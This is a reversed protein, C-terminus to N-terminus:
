EVEEMEILSLVADILYLLDDLYLDHYSIPTLNGEARLFFGEGPTFTIPGYGRDTDCMEPYSDYESNNVTSLVQIAKDRLDCGQQVFSRGM